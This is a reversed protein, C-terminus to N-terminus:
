PQLFDLFIISFFLNKALRNFCSDFSTAFSDIATKCSNSCISFPLRWYFLVLRLTINSRYHHINVYWVMSKYRLFAIHRIRTKMCCNGVCFHCSFGINNGCRNPEAVAVHKGMMKKGAVNIFGRSLDFM